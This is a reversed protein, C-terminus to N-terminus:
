AVTVKAGVAELQKKADEAEDKGVAEKLKKPLGEILDKADKLALNTLARVVKITAIRASSPVEEIVVDFETDDDGENWRDGCRADAAIADAPSPAPRMMWARGRRRPAM